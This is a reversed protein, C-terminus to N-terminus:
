EVDVDLLTAAAEARELADDNTDGVAIVYGRRDGDLRVPRITEGRTLFVDAQVVGPFALVRELGSWGRVRGTPLPGPEATLFRIALPRRYRPFALEDPVEVGLAQRLAIEVLDLGIAHRALDAMQGGPIRAAVEIVRVSGDASVLLQPFAIGDRLGLARVARSVVHEAEALVDEDLHAPYVHIWGVGFGIGAPRLRDSLTLPVVEGGRALALGNLELAEHFSEVIAEGTPSDALAAHLHADLDDESALRFVGRQGGSDAPKLVAPLGVTELAHRGERLTRVSAFRPQPVGAEALRRRMAVKHTMAHATESGIGPLDLAEAVAAVVPVARDASVTLVGAVGERRGIRTVASVDSFDVTEAVDAEALGPAEPNRDVAVVRVGLERARVIARRQHRGAGVFLVSRM